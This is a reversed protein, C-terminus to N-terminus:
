PTTRKGAKRPFAGMVDYVENISAFAQPDTERILEKLMALEFRSIVCMLVDKEEHSYGGIGKMITVGRGLKNLLKQALEEGKNSIIMVNRKSNFGELTKNFVTSTLYLFVITYMAKEVGFILSGAAVIFVNATFSVAGVSIDYKKKMILGVIDFGGASAHYRVFLGSSFGTLAGGFICALLPNSLYEPLKAELLILLGSQTLMSIVTYIAFRLDMQRWGWIILPINLILLYAGFPIVPLYHSIIAAIGWAGGPLFENPSVFILYGAVTILSSVIIMFVYFVHKYWPTSLLSEMLNEKSRVQEKTSQAPIIITAGPMMNIIEKADGYNMGPNEEPIGLETDSIDELAKAEKSGQALDKQQQEM